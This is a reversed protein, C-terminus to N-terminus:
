LFCHCLHCRQPPGAQGLVCACQHASLQPLPLEPPCFCISRTLSLGTCVSEYSISLASSHSAPGVLLKSGGHFPAWEQLCPGVCPSM